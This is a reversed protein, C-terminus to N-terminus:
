GMKKQYKVKEEEVEEEEEEEMGDLELFVFTTMSQWEDTMKFSEPLKKSQVIKQTRLSKDQGVDEDEYKISRNNELNNMM